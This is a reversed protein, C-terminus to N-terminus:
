YAYVQNGMISAGRERQHREVSSTIKRGDLYVNVARDGGESARIAALVAAYVGESIGEVIQENNAVTTKNGIRGVMEPGAERAVFLEGLDPFGGKAYTYFSSPYSIKFGLVEKTGWKVGIKPLKFNLKFDLSGLWKKVTSWGSKVLKIPASLTPITGVWKKVSSWGSKALKVGQSVAPIGGIWKKVSSWGSKALKIAQSLTPISGIWGRVSSWGSKALKIAQSIVPINGIWDKVSKWGSKVLKVDVEVTDTKKKGGSFFSRFGSWLDSCWGGIDELIGSLSGTIGEWIGDVLYEGVPIMTKAPSSIGFADCFGDVVGGGFECINGWLNSAGNKIGDWLGGVINGGVECMGDWVTETWFDPDFIKGILNGIKEMSFNEAVWDIASEIASLIAAGLDAVWNFLSAGVDYVWKCAKGIFEGIKHGIETFDYDVIALGLLAVVAAAIWGWVPISALAGTIATWGGTLAGSLAAGIEPLLGKLAATIPPGVLKWIKAATFGTAVTTLAVDLWDSIENGFDEGKAEVTGILNLVLGVTIGITLGLGGNGLAKGILQGGIGASLVSGIKTLWSEWSDNSIEGSAIGGNRITSLVLSASVALGIVFGTTPSFKMQRAIWAAGFAGMLATSIGQIWTEPSSMTITGDKLGLNLAVLQAAISVALALVVGKTGWAKFMLYGAAATILAEGILYLFNGSELYKDAFTFVLAAEIAVIAVTAFLKQLLNMKELADGMHKLLTAIGLGALAGGITGIVPLWDKLKQKIEDVKSQIQDFISEDWLSDIDLDGFGAGGGGSGGSGGSGSGSSDKPPSIVNLEDIGLTARKLDEIADRAAGASDATDDLSGSAGDAADAVDGLGGVGSGISNSWDVPQIEIGFFAAVAIIAETLLSVFAQLWPMVKVLIPLFLSGFAQALSKLQQAFTRMLGEATNLERAYTGVLNQAHAQDVLTLYRLYSKQAETAKELSIELGHNAATQELTSEVITFGARRIPEVEGAIASKVAEAADAFNKYVDNYGAWIDYTLETYGLAMNSADELGVGFGQLMTAYVSSYQMFQQVNIGMEENLRQIWAYVEEAQDGFGRGFRAAVGDWEIAQGIANSLLRVLPMIAAVVGQIITVMSALNLTTANVKSGFQKVGNGASKASSNVAKLGASITTMKASLPTLAADLKKVRDAFNAITTDDLGKTVKGIKALSNVMTGLGASKISSLPQAAQALKELKEGLSNDINLGSLGKLAGPLKDLYGIVKALSGAKSLKEVSDALTRLEHAKSTVATMGSLAASLNNLNKVATSFKGNDKLKGLSKALAEIGQAAGTSNSQIEIQLSDITTSM